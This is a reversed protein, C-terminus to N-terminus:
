TGDSAIAYSDTSGASVAIIQKGFRSAAIEIPSPRESGVEALPYGLAGEGGYGWAYVRNESTLALAHSYGIAISTVTKGTL